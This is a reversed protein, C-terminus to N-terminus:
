GDSTGRDALRALLTEFGPFSDAICDTGQVVTEGTAVLGAVLLAMALRHDGHSNVLTGRLPTPGRVIFGDPLPEIQAGLKRL